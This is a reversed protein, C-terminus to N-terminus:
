VMGRLGVHPHRHLVRQEVGLGVDEAAELQDVGAAPGADAAEEEGAAAAGDVALLLGEGAVLRV